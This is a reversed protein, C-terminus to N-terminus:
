PCGKPGAVATVAAGANLFVEGGTLPDGTQQLTEKVQEPTLSPDKELMLAVVGAVKAAAGSTGGFTKTYWSFDGGSPNCSGDDKTSTTLDQDNAGPAFVSVRDGFNSKPHPPNNEGYETAGVVIAGSEPIENSADDEGANKGGNGAPVVVVVNNEVARKIAENVAISEEINGKTCTQTELLLVKRCGNCPEAVVKAIAAAWPNGQVASWDTDCSGHSGNSCAAQIPWIKSDYAVGRFGSSDNRAAILGTVATGHSVWEVAATGPLLNCMNYFHTMDLAGALDAHETLFGWDVDAVVVGKGTADCRWAADVKTQFQYWQTGCPRATDIITKAEHGLWSHDPTDQAPIDTIDQTPDGVTQQNPDEAPVDTPDYNPASVSPVFAFHRLPSKRFLGPKFLRVLQNYIAVLKDQQQPQGPRLRITYTTLLDLQRALQPGVSPELIAQFQHKLLRRLAANKGSPASADDPDLPNVLVIELRDTVFAGDPLPPTTIPRPDFAAFSHEATLGGVLISALFVTRANM